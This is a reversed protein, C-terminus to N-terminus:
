SPTLVYSRDVHDVTFGLSEYLKVAGTNSGTVYLMGVTVGQSAMWQLGAVTLARGWGQGHLAPDVSIVYIEGLVPETTRHIKTWCSGLLGNGDPRDAVLFGELDFWDFGMHEHPRGVDM